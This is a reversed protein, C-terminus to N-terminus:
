RLALSVPARALVAHRCRITCSIHGQGLATAGVLYLALSFPVTIM